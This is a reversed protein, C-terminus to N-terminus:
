LFLFPFFGFHTILVLNEKKKKPWARLTLPPYRLIKPSARHRVRYYAKVKKKKLTKNARAQKKPKSLRLNWWVVVVVVVVMSYGWM